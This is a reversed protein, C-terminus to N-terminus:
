LRADVRDLKGPWALLMKDATLLKYGNLATAMIIRDAPDGHLNPLGGAKLAIQSSVLINQLGKELSSNKLWVDLSDTIELRNKRVLMAIEWFSIASIYLNNNALAQDIIKKAKDGLKTSGM